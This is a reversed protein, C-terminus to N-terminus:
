KVHENQWSTLRGDDLYLYQDQDSYVWQESTHGAVFSSNIETPKGWALRIQEGNMGARVERGDMARCDAMSWSNDVCAQRIKPRKLTGLADQKAKTWEADTMQCDVPDRMSYDTCAKRIQDLSSLVHQDHFEQAFAPDSNVPAETTASPKVVPADVGVVRKQSAVSIIMALISAGVLAGLAVNLQKNTMSRWQRLIEHRYVVGSIGGLNIQSATVAAPLGHAPM